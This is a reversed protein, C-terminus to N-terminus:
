GAKRASCARIRGALLLSRWGALLWGALLWGALLWGALLSLLWGSLL